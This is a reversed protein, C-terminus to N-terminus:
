ACHKKKIKRQGKMSFPYLSRSYKSFVHELRHQSFTTHNDVLWEEFDAEVVNVISVILYGEINVQVSQLFDVIPKPIM